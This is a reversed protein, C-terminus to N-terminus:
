DTASRDQALSRAVPASLWLGLGLVETGLHRRVPFAFRDLQGIITDLDEGPHVNTCYAVHVTQGDSHQLRVTM